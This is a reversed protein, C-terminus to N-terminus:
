HIKKNRTEIKEELIKMSSTLVTGFFATQSKFLHKEEKSKFDKKLAGVVMAYQTCYQPENIAKFVILNGIFKSQEITQLDLSRLNNIIKKINTNTLKNLEFNAKELITEKNLKFDKYNVPVKVTNKVLLKLSFPTIEKCSMIDSVSYKIQPISSPVFVYPAPKKYSELLDNLLKERKVNIGECTHCKIKNMKDENQKEDLKVQEQNENQKEDLKQKDQEENQKVDLKQKDQNEDQKTEDQKIEDKKIEDKKIEDQKIEDKKNEDQSKETDLEESSDDSVDSLDELSIPTGDPKCLVYKKTDKKEEIINLPPASKTRLEYLDEEKVFTLLPKTFKYIIKKVISSTDESM